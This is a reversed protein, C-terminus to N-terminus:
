QGNFRLRGQFCGRCVDFFGRGKELHATRYNRFPESNWLDRISHSADLPGLVVPRTSYLYWCCPVVNGDWDITMMSWIWECLQDSQQPVSTVELGSVEQNMLSGRRVIMNLGLEKCFSRAAAVEQTNHAFLLYDIVVVMNS